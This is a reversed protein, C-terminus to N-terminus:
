LAESAEQALANRLDAVEASLEETRYMNRLVAEELSDRWRRLDNIRRILNDNPQAAIEDELTSLQQELEALTWATDALEANASKFQSLQDRYKRLLQEYSNGAQSELRKM